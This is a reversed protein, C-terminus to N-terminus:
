EDFGMRIIRWDLSAEPEYRNPSPFPPLLQGCTPCYVPEPERTNTSTWTRVPPKPDLTALLLEFREIEEDGMGMLRFVELIEDDTM